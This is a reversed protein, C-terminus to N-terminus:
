IVDGRSNRSRVKEVGLNSLRVGERVMGYLIYLALSPFLVLRANWFLGVGVIVLLALQLRAPRDPASFYEVQSVMLASFLVIMTVLYESYQLSGWVEECFIVYAVMALAAAPVPLGLFNKKEDSQALLNYRALRYSASMIYVISLAWGWEGLNELKISYVLFAPAIGFSSFDALSDLEVGFRSDANALRAVKGDLMDLFAALIIFWCAEIEKGQSVSIVAIFGCVLNGMTFMGPFFGRFDRRKQENSAEVFDDNDELREM